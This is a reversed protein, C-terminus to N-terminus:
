DIEKPLDMFFEKKTIKENFPFQDSTSTQNIFPSKIILNSEANIITEGGSIFMKNEAGINTNDSSIEFEESSKLYTNKSSISFHDFSEMDIYEDSHIMIEKDGFIHLKETANVKHTQSTSVINDAKLNINKSTLNIEELSDISIIGKETNLHIKNGNDDYISIGWKSQKEDNFEIVHGSRTKISKIHNNASGGSAKKIPFLSGSVFPRSPDGNEFNVIVEDEKEPIFVFGRNQAFVESSGADISQVRIWNTTKNIEKQWQFQIRIRGANKPDQNSVVTARQSEVKPFRVNPVPIQELAARIGTFSNSYNGEQNITHTVQTILFEGSTTDVKMNKPYDIYIVRGIGVKCTQTTGKLVLMGAIDRARELDILDTMTGYMDTVADFPQINETNFIQDSKDAVVKQYGYTKPIEINTEGNWEQDNEVSYTYQKFTSPQLNAELQMSTMEVDYVIPIADDMMPLGFYINSGNDSYFAEGYISSLRNLFHFPSENWMSIYEIPREYKPNSIISIGNGKTRIVETVVNHLTDNVFSDMAPKTDLKITESACQFLINNQSGHKGLFKINSIIGLFTYLEESQRHRFEIMMSEGINKIISVPDNMWGEKDFEEYNVLIGCTHHQNFSQNLELEVFHIVKGALTVTATVTNLYLMITYNQINLHFDESYRCFVLEAQLTTLIKIILM